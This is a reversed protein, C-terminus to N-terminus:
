ETPRAFRVIGRVAEASVRAYKASGKGKADDGIIVGCGSFAHKEGIMFREPWHAFDNVYLLDVREVRVGFEIYGGGVIRQLEELTNEVDAERVERKFPDVIVARM